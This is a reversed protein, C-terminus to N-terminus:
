GNGLRFNFFLVVVIGDDVDNHVKGQRGDVKGNAERRRHREDVVWGRRKQCREKQAARRGSGHVKVRKRDAKEEDRTGRRRHQRIGKRMAPAEEMTSGSLM